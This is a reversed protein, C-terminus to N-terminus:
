EIQTISCLAGAHTQVVRVVSSLEHCLKRLDFKTEYGSRSPDFSTKRYTAHSQRPVRKPKLSSNCATWM